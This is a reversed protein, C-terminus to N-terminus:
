WHRLTVKQLLTNGSGQKISTLENGGWEETMLHEHDRSKKLRVLYNILNSLGEDNLHIEVEDGNECLEFTLLEAPKDTM